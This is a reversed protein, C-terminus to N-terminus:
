TARVVLKGAMFAQMGAAPDRALFLSKATEYDTTM